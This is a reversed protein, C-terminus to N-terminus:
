MGDRWVNKGVALAVVFWQLSVAHCNVFPPESVDEAGRSDWANMESFGM